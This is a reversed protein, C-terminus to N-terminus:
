RLFGNQELKEIFADVDAQALSETVDYAELLAEKLQQPTAGKELQEWLFRGTANLSIMLNLDLTDRVPVVVTRGAIERLVFGEKLKMPIM